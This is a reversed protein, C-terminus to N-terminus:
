IVSPLPRPLNHMLYAIGSQLCYECSSPMKEKELLAPLDQDLIHGRSYDPHNRPLLCCTLIKGEEDITLLRKQPCVYNKPSQKIVKVMEEFVIDNSIRAYEEKSMTDSRWSTITWWDILIAYYPDVLIGLKEAFERCKSLEDFNFQFVQFFIQLQGKYDLHRSDHVFKEINRKVTEFDLKHIRDYSAQSFGSMSFRIMALNQLFPADIKGIKFGNTSLTYRLGSKNIVGVIQDLNPHLFPEGWNYLHLITTSTIIRCELLRCIGKEFLEVPIAGGLNQHRAGTVCYPCRANCLGVIEFYLDDYPIM